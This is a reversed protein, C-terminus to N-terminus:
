LYLKVESRCPLSTGDVIALSILRYCCNSVRRGKVDRHISSIM